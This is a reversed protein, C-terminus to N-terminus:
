NKKTRPPPNPPNINYEELYEIYLEIISITNEKILNKIELIRNNYLDEDFYTRLTNISYDDDGKFFIYDDFYKYYKEFVIQGDVNGDCFMKWVNVFHGLSKFHNNAFDPSFLYKKTCVPCEVFDYKIIDFLEQLKM